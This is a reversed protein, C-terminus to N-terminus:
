RLREEVLVNTGNGRESQILAAVAQLYADMFEREQPDAVREAV